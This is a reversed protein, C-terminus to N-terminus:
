GSCDHARYRARSAAFEGTQLDCLFLRESQNPRQDIPRAFRKLAHVINEFSPYLAIVRLDISHWSWLAEIPTQSKQLFDSLSESNTNRVIVPQAGCGSRLTLVLTRLSSLTQETDTIGARPLLFRLTVKVKEKM